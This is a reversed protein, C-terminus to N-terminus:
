PILYCAELVLEIFIFNSYFSVVFDEHVFSIMALNRESLVVLLLRMDSILLVNILTMM